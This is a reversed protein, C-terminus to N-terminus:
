ANELFYSLLIRVVSEDIPVKFSSFFVEPEANIRTRLEGLTHIGCGGIKLPPSGFAIAALVVPIESSEPYEKLLVAPTLNGQFLPNFGNEELVSEIKWALTPSVGLFRLAQDTNVLALENLSKFGWELPSDEPIERHLQWLAREFPVVADDVGGPRKMHRALIQPNNAIEELYGEPIGLKLLNQALKEGAVATSNRLIYTKRDIETLASVAHSLYIISYNHSYIM